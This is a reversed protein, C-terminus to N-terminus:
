DQRGATKSRSQEWAAREKDNLESKKKEWKYTGFPGPREFKLSDGAETVKLPEEPPQPEARRADPKDDMRAVGFPTKRYIWSKGAADTARFSGPEFEVANAPIEVPKVAVPAPTKPQAKAAATKSGQAKSTQQKPPQEKAPQSKSAQGEAACLALASCSLVILLKM